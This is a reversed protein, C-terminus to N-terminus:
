RRVDISILGEALGCLTRHRASPPRDDVDM